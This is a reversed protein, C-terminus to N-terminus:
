PRDASARTACWALQQSVCRTTHGMQRLFMFDNSKKSGDYQSECRPSSELVRHALVSLRAPTLRLFTLRKVRSTTCYQVGCSPM